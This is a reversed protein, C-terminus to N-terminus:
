VIMLPWMENIINIRGYNQAEQLSKKEWALALINGNPLVEFDHHPHFLDSYFSYNWLINGAWDLKEFVGGVPGHSNGFSHDQSRTQVIISRDSNLHPIGVVGGLHAWTNIYLYGNNMLYTNSAGVGQSNSYLILGNYVNSYVCCTFLIYIPVILIFRRM